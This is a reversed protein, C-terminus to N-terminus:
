KLLMAFSIAIILTLLGSGLALLLKQYPRKGEERAKAIDDLGVGESFAVIERYTQIDFQKKMKELRFAVYLTVGMLMLWIGIGVFSLFHFLPIPSLIALLFLVAYIHSLGEFKKRDEARIQEKMIEIDGKILNDISVNFVESLLVLSNVDPYSKDNEWNSITQRSVYVKEALEEQSLSLENRRKKIQSGLEM